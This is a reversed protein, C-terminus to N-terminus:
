KRFKIILIVRLHYRTPGVWISPHTDIGDVPFGWSPYGLALAAVKLTNRVNKDMADWHGQSSFYSLLFAKPDLRHQCIHSYQRWLARVPCALLDKNHEQYM